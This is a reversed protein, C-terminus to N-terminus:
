SEDTNNLKESIDRLIMNKEQQIKLFKLLFWIIFVIPAIYFFITFIPFFAFLEDGNM